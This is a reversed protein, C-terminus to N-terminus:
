NLKKEKKIQIKLGNKTKNKESRIERLLHDQRAFPQKYQTHKDYIEYMQIQRHTHMLKYIRQTLITHLKKSYEM